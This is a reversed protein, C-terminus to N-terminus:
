DARASFPRFSTQAIEDRRVTNNLAAGQIFAGYQFGVGIILQTAPPPPRTLTRRAPTRRAARAHARPPRRRVDHGDAVATAVM